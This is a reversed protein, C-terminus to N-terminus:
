IAYSGAKDFPDGTAIYAEIEADSYERMTVDTRTVRTIVNRSGSKEGEGDYAASSLPHPEANGLESRFDLESNIPYAGSGRGDSAPSPPQPTLPLGNVVMTLATCVQHMRGRLRRLMERAAEAEEPKGLIEGQADIGLTDAGLIVVTDAALIVQEREADDKESQVSYKTSQVIGAAAEAKERSLRRVYDLPAEGAQQTEDIDPKIITFPIGLSGLLERRRPSSSALILQPITM